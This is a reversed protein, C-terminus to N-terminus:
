NASFVGNSLLEKDFVDCRMTFVKVKEAPISPLERVSVNDDGDDEEQNNKANNCSILALFCLVAIIKHNIM